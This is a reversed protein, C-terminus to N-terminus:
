SARYSLLLATIVNACLCKQLLHQCIDTKSVEEFSSKVNHLKNNRASVKALSTHHGEKRQILFFSQNLLILCIYVVTTLCVLRTQFQVVHAFVDHLCSVSSRFQKYKDLVDLTPRIM